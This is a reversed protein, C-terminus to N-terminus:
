RFVRRRQPQSEVPIPANEASLPSLLTETIMGPGDTLITETTPAEPITPQISQSLTLISQELTEMRALLELRFQAHEDRWTALDREVAEIRRGLESHIASLAITEAAEQAQEIREEAQQIATEAVAEAIEARNEALANENEIERVAESIENETDGM